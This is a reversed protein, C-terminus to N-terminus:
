VTTKRGVTDGEVLSKRDVTVITDNHAGGHCVLLIEEITYGLTKTFGVSNWGCRIAVGGPRLVKDLRVISEKYLSANQTGKSGMKLGMGAYVETMQRPSYPPDLLVADAVVGEAILRDLYDRALIGSTKLDNSHTAWESKGAFPDVIISCGALVRELLERIPKINFTWPSPMAWERSIKM